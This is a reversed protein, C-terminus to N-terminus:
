EELGGLNVGAKMTPEHQEIKFTRHITKHIHEEKTMKRKNCSTTLKEEVRSNPTDDPIKQRNKKVM